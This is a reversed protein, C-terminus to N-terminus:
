NFSDAKEISISIRMNRQYGKTNLKELDNESSEKSQAPNKSQAESQACKEKLSCCIKSPNIKM